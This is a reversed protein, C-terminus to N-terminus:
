ETTAAPTNKAEVEIFDGLVDTTNDHPARAALIVDAFTKTYLRIARRSDDNGPIAYDVNQPLTNSDIIAVVPISLRKAEEIAIHEHKADIIFIADPLGGMKKIGGLNRELKEHERTLNLIEKKKLLDFSQKELMKTLEQLRRISQRITKYNTLMGGLWRHNVYPMGCRSAEEAVITSAARKTGVFLIKGKTSAIREIFAAAETFMDRTKELNIIHVGDRAGYLYPAMKPHWYRTQHGFHVGAKMMDKISLIMNEETM